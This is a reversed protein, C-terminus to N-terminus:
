QVKFNKEIEWYNIGEPYNIDKDRIATAPELKKAAYYNKVDADWEM